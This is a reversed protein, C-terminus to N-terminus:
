LLGRLAGLMQARTLGLKRYRMYGKLLKIM